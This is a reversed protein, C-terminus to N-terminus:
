CVHEPLNDNILEMLKQQNEATFKYEYDTPKIETLDIEIPYFGDENQTVTGITEFDSDYVILQKGEYVTIGKLYLDCLSRYVYPVIAKNNGVEKLNHFDGWIREM